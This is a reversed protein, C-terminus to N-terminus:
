TRSVPLVLEALPLRQGFSRSSTWFVAISPITSYYRHECRPQPPNTKRKLVVIQLPPAAAPSYRPVPSIKAKKTCV